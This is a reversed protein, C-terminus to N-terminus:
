GGRGFQHTVVSSGLCPHGIWGRFSSPLLGLWGQTEEIKKEQNDKKKKKKIELEQTQKNIKTKQTPNFSILNRAPTALHIDLFFFFFSLFLVGLCELCALSFTQSAL